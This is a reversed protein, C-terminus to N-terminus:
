QHETFLNKKSKEGKRINIISIVLGIPCCFALPITFFISLIGLLLVTSAGPLEQKIDNVM